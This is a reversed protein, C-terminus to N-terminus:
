TYHASAGPTESRSDKNEVIDRLRRAIDDLWHSDTFRPTAHVVWLRDDNTFAGCKIADKATILIPGPGLADFPSTQFAAHDPLAVTHALALGCAELMGFFREPRGIGAVANAPTRGHEILWTSWDVSRRTALHEVHSPFLRMGVTPVGGTSAPDSQGPELNVVLYDIQGLRDAPERLPGAPLLRGNGIGRADQVALEIDRGLEIHQLGDDAIVVDIEPHAAELARLALIRRPHVGVPVGTRLAILAPEDGFRAPDLHGTGVRPAQSSAVGYGRSIVGPTWGRERLGQALAIVVPTKGTGGVYINGVVVVPSRGRQRADPRAFRQRKHAVVLRTIWSFPLLVTSALGKGRWVRHALTALRASPKM